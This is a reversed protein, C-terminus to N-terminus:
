QKAQGVNYIIIAGVVIVAGFVSLGSVKEGYFIAVWIPNMIPELGTIVSATVANTRGIGISLLIYALGVQVVGMIFVTVVAQM